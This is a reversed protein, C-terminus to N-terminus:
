QHTENDGVSTTSTTTPRHLTAIGAQQCLPCKNKRRVWDKLCNKHFIHDCSIDGVLDGRQLIGLCIACRPTQDSDDDDNGVEEDASESLSTSNNDNNFQPFGGVTATISSCRVALTAPNNEEDQRGSESSPPEYIKTRLALASSLQPFRSADLITTGTADDNQREAGGRGRRRLRQLQRQENEIARGYLRAAQEPAQTLLHRVDQLLLEEDRNTTTRSSRASGRPQQEIQWPSRRRSYDCICCCYFILKRKMFKRAQKGSNTVALAFFIALFMFISFPWFGRIFSRGYSIKHCKAIGTKGYVVCTEFDAPCYEEPRGYFTTCWCTRIEYVGSKDTTDADVNSRNVDEGELTKEGTDVFHIFDASDTGNNVKKFQLVKPNLQCQVAQITDRRRQHIFAISAATSLNEEEGSAGHILLTFLVSGIICTFARTSKSM